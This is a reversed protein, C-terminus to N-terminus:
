VPKRLDPRGEVEQAAIDAMHISEVPTATDFSGPPPAPSRQSSASYFATDSTLPLPMDQAAKQDKLSIGTRHNPLFVQM